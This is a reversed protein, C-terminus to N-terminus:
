VYSLDTNDGNGDNSNNETPNNDGSNESEPGACSLMLLLSYLFLVILVAIISRQKPIV